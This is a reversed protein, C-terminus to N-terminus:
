RWRTAASLVALAAPGATSSRLVHPGLRAPRAGAAVLAALEDPDIGGEPGVVLLVEGVAPLGITAVPVDAEEHLVLTLASARAREVLAALGTVASVRPVRPRRSQKAAARVTGVWKQRGKDARPGRWVVVSRGSQWPVVEDVGLETASEIALEDRGGKALAQVLVFRLDPEVLGEVQRVRLRLGVPAGRSDQVVADVLCRALQREGDSVDVPEGPGLRRVGAAHRGEPGDLLLVDGPAVQELAGADLLFLATTM